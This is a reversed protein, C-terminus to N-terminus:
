CTELVMDLNTSEYTPEGLGLRTLLKIRVKNKSCNKIVFDTIRIPIALILIWNIENMLSM